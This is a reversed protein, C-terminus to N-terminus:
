GSVPNEWAAPDVSCEREILTQFEGETGPMRGAQRSPQRWGRSTTEQLAAEWESVGEEAWALMDLAAQRDAAPVFDQASSVAEALQRAHAARWEVTALSVYTTGASQTEENIRPQLDLWEFYVRLPSCLGSRDAGSLGSDASADSGDSEGSCGLATALLGACAAAIVLRRRM